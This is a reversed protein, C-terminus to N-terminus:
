LSPLQDPDLAGAGLRLDRGPVLGGAALRCEQCRSLAREPMAARGMHPVKFILAKADGSGVRLRMKGGSDM